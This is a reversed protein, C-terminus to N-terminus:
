GVDAYNNGQTKTRLAEENMRRENMRRENSIRPCSQLCNVVPLVGMCNCDRALSYPSRNFTRVSLSSCRRPKNWIVVYHSRCFIYVFFQVVVVPENTMEKDHLTQQPRTTTTCISLCIGCPSFGSDTKNRVRRQLAARGRHQRRRRHKRSRVEPAVACNPALM